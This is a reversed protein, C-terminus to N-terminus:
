KPRLRLIKGDRGDTLLYLFGDPGQRIDRYRHGLGNLLREERVVKAGDLELRSVLSGALAGVFMSGRWKPFAAGTYFTMGSPAISPDWYHVPQEMGEKRTGVGIKAGSYDKGYTIVPWGYNRGPRPQNIEDGGMAGHEATWLAGTAPHLAAGQINRHGYSWIEPQAGAQKLFPNDAPVSGDPKIRVVKGYHTGLEQSREKQGREGLAIFLNGDRAIVIRSGFHVPGSSAPQQRFIVKTDTLSTGDASLKASLVSTAGGGDRPEAFSLYLQRTTVFDPALVVDLLGGQGRAFVAPVGTIAPNLAGNKEVIRLRGPKETVLMRGDPLFALGWPSELGKAASELIAPGHSTEVPQAIAPLSLGLALALIARRVSHLM